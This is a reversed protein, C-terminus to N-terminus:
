KRFIAALGIQMIGLKHSSVMKKKNGSIKYSESRINYFYTLLCYIFM